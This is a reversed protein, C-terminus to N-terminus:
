KAPGRVSVIQQSAPLKPVRPLNLFLDVLPTNLYYNARGYRRKELYGAQALKDLYRSATLRSISLEHQLLNIKTYPHRFLNNLLDQSYLKPFQARIRHKYDLMMDRIKVILDITQRSTSSVGELMFLIWEEWVGQERVAQLLRYYDSKNQIIFRSLYLVPLNLLDNALLYLINLIRGTRGNGDYFPHISEFQYHIIAMKVLPDIALRAPKNIFNDLDSMLKVIRDHEQPPTYIVEGTAQNRLATGPLKRFGADNQELLKQIDLIQNVTILRSKRVSLFGAHLASVYRAVEKAAPKASESALQAKFLDDHTTVINEIESSDKAEQLALTQILISENPITAAIGKLEALNRHADALKRLVQRTEIDATLSIPQLDFGSM